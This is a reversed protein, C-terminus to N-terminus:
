CILGWFFSNLGSCILHAIFQFHRKKGNSENQCNFTRQDKLLINIDTAPSCIQRENKSILLFFNTPRSLCRRAQRTNITDTITAPLPEHQEDRHKRKEWSLCDTLTVSRCLGGGSCKRLRVLGPGLRVKEGLSLSSYKLIKVLYLYKNIRERTRVFIICIDPYNSM